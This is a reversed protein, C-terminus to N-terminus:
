QAPSESPGGTKSIDITFQVQLIDKVQARWAPDVKLKGVLDLAADEFGRHAPTASIVNCGQLDGGDLAFCRLTVSGKPADGAAATPYVAAIESTSPLSSWQPNTAIPPNTRPRDALRWSIPLTIQSEETLPSSQFIPSIRLTAAGFGKGKPYEELISCHELQGKVNVMCHMLVRGEVSRDSPWNAAMDSGTPMRRWQVAQPEAMAFSAANACATTAVIAVAWKVKM